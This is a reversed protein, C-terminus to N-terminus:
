IRATRRQASDLIRRHLDGAILKRVDSERFFVSRGVRTPELYGRRIWSRIARESRNFIVAVEATSLLRPLPEVCGLTPPADEAPVTDPVTHDLTPPPASPARLLAAARRRGREVPDPDFSATTLFM